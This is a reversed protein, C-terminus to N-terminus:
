RTFPIRNRRTTPTVVSTHTWVVTRSAFSRPNSQRTTSSATAEYKGSNWRTARSIILAWPPMKPQVAGAAETVEANAPAEPHGAPSDEAPGRQWQCGPLAPRDQDEASGGPKVASRVLQDTKCRGAQTWRGPAQLKVAGQRGHSGPHDQGEVAQGPRQLASSGKLADVM